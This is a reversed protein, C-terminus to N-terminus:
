FSTNLLKRDVKEFYIKNILNIIKITHKQKKINIHALQLPMIWQLLAM